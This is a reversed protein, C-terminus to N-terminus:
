CKSDKEEEREKRDAFSIMLGKRGSVWRKREVKEGTSGCGFRKTRKQLEMALHIQSFLVLISANVIAKQGDKFTIETQKKEVTNLNQVHALSIWVCDPKVHSSVPFLYIGGVHDIVLPLKTKVGLLQKSAKKRGDYTSLYHLCSKRVITFTKEHILKPEKYSELVITKQGSDVPQLLMTNSQICFMEDAKKSKNRVM